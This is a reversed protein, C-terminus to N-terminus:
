FIVCGFAWIDVKCDYNRGELLEPAMYYPSNILTQAYSM